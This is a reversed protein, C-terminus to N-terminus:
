AFLDVVRPIVPDPRVEEKEKKEKGAKADKTAKAKDGKKTQATSLPAYALVLGLFALAGVTWPLLRRM